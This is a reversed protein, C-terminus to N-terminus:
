NLLCVEQPCCAPYQKTYDYMSLCCGPRITPLDCPSITINILNPQGIVCKIISCEGIPAPKQEGEKIYFDRFHCYGPKDLTKEDNVMPLCTIVTASVAVILILVRFM